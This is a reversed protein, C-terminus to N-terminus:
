ICEIIELRKEIGNLKIILFELLQRGMLAEKCRSYTDIEIVSEELIGPIEIVGNATRLFIREGTVTEVQPLEDEVVEFSEMNLEEYIELPIVVFGDYGTDILTEVVREKNGLLNKIRLSLYPAKIESRPTRKYPFELSM